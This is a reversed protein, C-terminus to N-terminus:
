EEEKHLDDMISHAASDLSYVDFHNSERAILDGTEKFAQIIRIRILRDILAIQKETLKM